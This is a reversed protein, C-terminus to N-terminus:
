AAAQAALQTGENCQRKLEQGKPITVCELSLPWTEKSKKKRRMNKNQM